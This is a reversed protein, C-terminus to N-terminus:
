RGDKPDNGASPQEGTQEPIGGDYPREDHTMDGGTEEGYNDNYPMDEQTDGEDHHALDEETHAPADNPPPESDAGAQSAAQAAKLADAANDQDGPAMGQAEQMQQHAKVLQIAGEVGGVKNIFENLEEVNKLDDEMQKMSRTKGFKEQLKKSLDNPMKAVEKIVQMQMYSEFGLADIHSSDDTGQLRLKKALMDPMKKMWDISAKFIVFLVVFYVIYMLIRFMFSAFGSELTDGSLGANVLAFVSNIVFLSASVMTWSIVVAIGFFFPKLYIGLFGEYFEVFGREYNKEIDKFKLIVYFPIIFGTVSIGVLFLLLMMFGYLFSALPLVFAFFAGIVFLAVVLPALMNLIVQVPIIIVQVVALLVKLPAALKGLLKGLKGILTAGTKKIWNWVGSKKKEGKAEGSISSKGDEYGGLLKAVTNVSHQLLMMTLMNNMLENGFQSLAVVPHTQSSVCSEYGEDLCKDFGEFISDTIAMGSARKIHNVPSFFLYELRDFFGEMALEESQEDSMEVMKDFPMMGSAGVSFFSNFEIPKFEKVKDAINQASADRGFAEFNIFQGEITPSSAVVSSEISNKMHLASSQNKGLYMVSAGFVGWGKQRLLTDNIKDDEGSVTEKLQKGMAESIAKKIAVTYGVLIMKGRTARDLYEKSVEVKMRENIAIKESVSLLNKLVGDGAISIDKFTDAHDVSYRAYRDYDTSGQEDKKLFDVCEMSQTVGNFLEDLEEPPKRNFEIVFERSNFHNEWNFACHYGKLNRAVERADEILYDLAFTKNEIAGLGYYRNYYQESSFGQSVMAEGRYVERAGEDRVGGMLANLVTKYKVGLVKSDGNKLITNNSIANVLLRDAAEFFVKLYAAEREKDSYENNEVILTVKNKVMGKFLPYYRKASFDSQLTEIEDGLDTNLLGFYQVLSDADDTPYDYTVGGCTHHEGYVEPDYIVLKNGADMRCVSNGGRPKGKHMYISSLGNGIPSPDGVGVYSLCSDYRDIVDNQDDSFSTFLHEQVFDSSFYASGKKANVSMLKDRTRAQCLQNQILGNSFVQGEGLLQTEDVSVDSAAMNTSALYTSYIYNGGKIGPLAGIIALGQGLMLPGVPLILTVLFLFYTVFKVTDGKSEAFELRGTKKIMMTYQYGKILLLPTLVAWAFIAVSSMLAYIPKSLGMQRSAFKTFDSDLTSAPIFTLVIPRWFPDTYIEQYFLYMFQFSIDQECIDGNMAEIVPASGVGEGEVTGCPLASDEAYASFTGSLILFLTALLTAKKLYHFM